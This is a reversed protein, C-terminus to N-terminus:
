MKKVHIKGKPLTFFFATIYAPLSSVTYILGGQDIIDGVTVIVCIRNSNEYEKVRKKMFSLGRGIERAIYVHYSGHYRDVVMDIPEEKARLVFEGESDKELYEESTYRYLVSEATLRNEALLDIMIRREEDTVKKM